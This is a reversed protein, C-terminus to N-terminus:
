HNKEEPKRIMLRYAGGKDENTNGAMYMKAGISKIM